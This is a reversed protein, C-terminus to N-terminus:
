RAATDQVIAGDQMRVTRTGYSAARADHTVMLVTAGRSRNADHILGLIQEGTRSDLNGTPEDALILLPDIVLARAIAVRQMEGGSLEDPRHGRRRGLGVQELVTEVSPRVTRWARGDLLLPLAVNEEATLTPLLNFFQFVFGIKRRRFITIEDDTMGSIPTGGIVIEGSTPQDLGGLLHLLTSKGSGSPGVVSVFEGESIDLSVASLACVETEGRGYVKRVSRLAIM